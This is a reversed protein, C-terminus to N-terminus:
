DLNSSLIAQLHSVAPLFFPEYEANTRLKACSLYIFPSKHSGNITLPLECIENCLNSQKYNTFFFCCSHFLINLWLNQKIHFTLSIFCLLFALLIFQLSLKFFQWFPLMADSWSKANLCVAEFYGGAHKIMNITKLWRCSIVRSQVLQQNDWSPTYLFKGM